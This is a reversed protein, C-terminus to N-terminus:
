KCNSNTSNLTRTKPNTDDPTDRYVIDEYHKAKKSIYEFVTQADRLKEAAIAQQKLIIQYRDYITTDGELCLDSYKKIDEIAMGCGKLCKIGELWSISEDDFVRRNNQDRQCPLLKKDTYYRITHETMDLIKSIQKVTYNMKYGRNM